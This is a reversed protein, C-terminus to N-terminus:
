LKDTTKESHIDQNQYPYLQSYGDHRPPLRGRPAVHPLMIATLFRSPKLGLLPELEKQCENKKKGCVTKRPPWDPM